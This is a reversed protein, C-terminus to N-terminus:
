DTQKEAEMKLDMAFQEFVPKFDPLAGSMMPLMLGTLVETMRFETTGNGKETILYTRVGKFM